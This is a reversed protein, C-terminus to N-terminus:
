GDNEEGSLEGAPQVEDVSLKASGRHLQLRVADGPSLAGADRLLLSEPMKWALSYGRSLVALPSLSDLKGV